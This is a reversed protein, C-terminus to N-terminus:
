HSDVGANYILDDSVQNRPSNELSGGRQKHGFGIRAQEEDDSEDQSEQINLGENGCKAGFMPPKM